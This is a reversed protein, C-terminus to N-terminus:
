KGRYNSSKEVLYCNEHRIQKTLTVSLTPFPRSNLIPNRTEDKNRDNKSISQDKSALSLAFALSLSLSLETTAFYSQNLVWICKEKGQVSPYNNEIEWWM